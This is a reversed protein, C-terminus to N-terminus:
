WHLGKKGNEENGKHSKSVVKRCEAASESAQAVLGLCAGVGKLLAALVRVVTSIHRESGGGAQEVLRNHRIRGEDSQVKAVDGPLVKARM